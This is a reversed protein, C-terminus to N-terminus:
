CDYYYQLQCFHVFVCSIAIVFKEQFILYKKKMSHFEDKSLCQCHVIYTFISWPKSEWQLWSIEQSSIQALFTDRMYVVCGKREGICHQEELIEAHDQMGCFHYPPIPSHLYFHVSIEQPAFHSVTGRTSCNHVQSCNNSAHNVSVMAHNLLM